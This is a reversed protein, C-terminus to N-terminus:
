EWVILRFRGAPLSLTLTNGVLSVAQETRADYVRPSEARLELRAADVRLTARVDSQGLNAVVFLAKGERRYLSVKVEEPASQVSDQNKWYPISEVEDLGFRDMARWTANVTDAHCRFGWLTPVDHVLFLALMRETKEVWAARADQSDGSPHLSPLFIPVLGWQRGAYGAQLVDPPIRTIYNGAFPPPEKGRVSIFPATAAEGDLYADAFALVPIQLMHSIHGVIVAGPVREKMAVYLRKMLERRAFIPYTERVRGTQDIYGCGHGLNRCGSYTFGDQYWGTEGLLEFNRIVQAVIFDNWGEGKSCVPTLPQGMSVVDASFTDSLGYATWESQHYDWEPVGTSVMTAQWYPLTNMGAANAQAIKGRLSAIAADDKPEPFGFYKWEGLHTWMLALTTGNRSRPVGPTLVSDGDPGFGNVADITRWTRWNRPMPKVPTAQLGFTFALPATLLRPGASINLRLVVTGSRRIVEVSRQPDRPRWHEDSETFWCLGRDEDGLWLLPYFDAQWGEAPLAGSWTRFLGHWPPSFDNLSPVPANLYKAHEQKLPIELSIEDVQVPGPGTTTLTLDVRVMGDFEVSTRAELGLNGSRNQTQFSVRAPTEEVFESRVVAWDVAHGSVAISFRAPAALMEAGVARIQTPLAQGEAFSYTRGWTLIDYGHVQVPTWPHPVRDSIGIRNGLWPAAPPVTYGRLKRLTDAIMPGPLVPRDWIRLEDLALRMRPQAQPATGKGLTISEPLARIEVRGGVHRGVEMGDFYCRIAATGEGQLSDWTAALHHWRGVQLRGFSAVTLNPPALDPDPAPLIQVGLRVAGTQPSYQGLSIVIRNGADDRSGLNALVAGAQDPAQVLLKVWMEVTGGAPSFRDRASFVITDDESESAFAGAIVGDVFAGGHITGEAGEASDLSAHLLVRQRDEAVTGM